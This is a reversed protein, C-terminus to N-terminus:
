SGAGALKANEAKLEAIEDDKTKILATLHVIDREAAALKAHGDGMFILKRKIIAGLTFVGAIFGRADEKTVPATFWNEPSGDAM